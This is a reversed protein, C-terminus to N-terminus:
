HYIKEPRLTASIDDVRSISLEINNMHEELDRMKQNFNITAADILVTCEIHLLLEEEFMLHQKDWRRYDFLFRDLRYDDQPFLFTVPVLADCIAPIGFKNNGYAIWERYECRVHTPLYPGSAADPDNDSALSQITVCDLGEIDQRYLYDEVIKNEKLYSLFHHKNRKELATDHGDITQRVEESNIFSAVSDFAKIDAHACDDLLSDDTALVVVNNKGQQRALNLVYEYMHGDPITITAAGQKLLEIDMLRPPGTFCREAQYELCGLKPQYPLKIKLYGKEVLRRLVEYETDCYYLDDMLLSLDFALYIM